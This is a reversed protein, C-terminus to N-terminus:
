ACIYSHNKKEKLSVKCNNELGYCSPNLSLNWLLFLCGELDVKMSCSYPRKPWDTIQALIMGKEVNKCKDSIDHSDCYKTPTDRTMQTSMVPWYKKQEQLM